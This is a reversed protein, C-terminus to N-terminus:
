GSDIDVWTHERDSRRIADLVRMGALGDAFTAPRPDDPVSGGEILARFTECLRTYPAM